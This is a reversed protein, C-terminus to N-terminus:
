ETPLTFRTLGETTAMYLHQGRVATIGSSSQISGAAHPVKILQCRQGDPEIMAVGDVGDVFTRGSEADAVVNPSFARVSFSWRVSGDRGLSRVLSDPFSTVTTVVFDEGLGAIAAGYGNEYTGPIRLDRLPNGDPDFTSIGFVYPGTGSESRPTRQSLVAAGGETDVVMGAVGIVSVGASPVKTQIFVPERDVLRTLVGHRANNFADGALIVTGDPGAALVNSSIGSLSVPPGLPQLEADFAYVNVREVLESDATPAYVSYVAVIANGNDDVALTAEMGTHEAGAQIPDSIGLLAGDSSYHVLLPEPSYSFTESPETTALQWFSGDPSSRLERTALRLSSPLPAFLLKDGLEQTTVQCPASSHKSSGASVAQASTGCDVGWCRSLNITDGEHGASIQEGACGAVLLL